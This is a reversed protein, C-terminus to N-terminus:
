RQIVKLKKPLTTLVDAGGKKVMVMDEIRVGGFKPLYIGPEITFVMGEEVTDKSQWSIVPREHVALGVGHGTGHGFDKQYGKEHIYNRAAADIKVAPMGSKVTKIARSQANLVLSYIELQKKMHKGKLAVTRTMDSYYGDCEGGWDFIVFDGKQLKRNTPQAHPLASMHGSAVIVGFPLTKCGEERLFGELKVALEQEKIGTRIMRQLKKFANEARRIATKICSIEKQSKVLRLTEVTESLAKLKLGQRHLRRYSEYSLSHSEFGLKRIRCHQALTKVFEPMAVNQAKITFGQVQQKAQEQYRFDTAFINSNRSILLMGASGTFGSLYRVNKLDTILIGDVGLEPLGKKLISSKRM